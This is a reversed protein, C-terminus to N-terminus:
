WSSRKDDIQEGALADFDISLKLGRKSFQRCEENIQHNLRFLQPILGNVLRVEPHLHQDDEAYNNETSIVHKSTTYGYILQRLELPLRLFHCQENKNSSTSDDEEGSM